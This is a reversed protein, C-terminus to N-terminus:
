ISKCLIIKAEFAPVSISSPMPGMTVAPRIRWTRIPALIISMSRVSGSSLLVNVAAWFVSATSKPMKSALMYTRPHLYQVRAGPAPLGIVPHVADHNSLVSTIM